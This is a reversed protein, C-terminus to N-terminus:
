FKWTIKGYVGCEVETPMTFSEQVFEPHEDDLLNQGVLAIEVKDNPRWALRLDLTFYSDIETRL